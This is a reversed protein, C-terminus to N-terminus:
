VVQGALIHQHSSIDALVLHPRALEKGVGPRAGKKGRAAQAGHAIPEGGGHARLKGFGFALYYGDGAVAGHLHVDLLEAGDHFIGQGNLDHQEVVVGQAHDALPLFKEVLFVVHGGHPAKLRIEHQQGFAVAHGAVTDGLLGRQPGRQM